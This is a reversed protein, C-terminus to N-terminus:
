LAPPSVASPGSAANQFYFVMSREMRFAKLLCRGFGVGLVPPGIHRIDAEQGIRRRLRSSIQEWCDNTASSEGWPKPQSSTIEAIM